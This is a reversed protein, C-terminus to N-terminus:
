KRSAVLEREAVIEDIRAQLLQADHRQERDGLHERTRRHRRRTTRAPQHDIRGDPSTFQFEAYEDRTLTWGGEHLLHHHHHCLLVLNNIDTPGNNEWYEIHHAVTWGVPRDCGPFRCGGDRAALARRQARNALRITRGMTLDVHNHDLLMAQLESGCFLKAVTAPPLVSGTDTFGVGARLQDSDIIVNVSTKPGTTCRLDVAFARHIIESFADVRRQAATADFVLSPDANTAAQDLDRQEGVLKEILGALAAGTDPELTADLKWTGDLLQSLHLSRKRHRRTTDDTGEDQEALLSWQQCVVAFDDATLDVAFAALVGLDAAFRETAWGVDLKAMLAIHDPTVDGSSLLGLLTTHKALFRATKLSRSASVGRLGANRKLWATPSSSGDVTWDLSEALQHLVVAQTADLVSRLEVLASVCELLDVGDAGGALAKLETKSSEFM